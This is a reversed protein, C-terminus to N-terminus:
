KHQESGWRNVHEREACACLGAVLLTEPILSYSMLVL